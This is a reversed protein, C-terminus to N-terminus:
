SAESSLKFKQLNLDRLHQYHSMSNLLAEAAEPPTKTAALKLQKIQKQGKSFLAKLADSALVGVANHHVEIAEIQKNSAVGKFLAAM